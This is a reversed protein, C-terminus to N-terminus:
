VAPAPHLDDIASADSPAGFACHVGGVPLTVGTISDARESALFAMAASSGSPVCPAASGHEGDRM